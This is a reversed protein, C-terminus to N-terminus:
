LKEGLNGIWNEPNLEKNKEEARPYYSSQGARM